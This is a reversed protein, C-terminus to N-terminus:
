KSDFCNLNTSFNRFCIQSLHWRYVRMYSVLCFKLINHSNEGRKWRLFDCKTEGCLCYYHYFSHLLPSPIKLAFSICIYIYIYIYIHKIYIALSSPLRCDMPDSESKVKMCQLLFHCGVGTNEGPSDWLHPLRTPQRRHPRLSDSM